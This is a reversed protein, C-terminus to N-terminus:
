YPIMRYDIRLCADMGKEFEYYGCYETFICLEEKSDVVFAHYLKIYSEDGFLIEVPPYREFDTSLLGDRLIDERPRDASDCLEDIWKEVLQKRNGITDIAM